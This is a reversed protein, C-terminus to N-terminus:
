VLAVFLKSRGSFFDDSGTKRAHIPKRAAEHRASFGDLRAFLKRPNPADAGGLPPRPVTSGARKAWDDFFAPLFDKRGKKVSLFTL